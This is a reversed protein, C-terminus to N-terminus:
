ATYRRAKELRQQCGERGLLALIGALGPGERQGTLVLRMTALARGPATASARFDTLVPRWDRADGGKDGDLHADMAKQFEAILAHTDPSRLHRAVDRDYDVTSTLVIGAWAEADSLTSLESTTASVFRSQWEPDREMFPYGRRELYDGVVQVLEVADLGRLVQGNLAKLGDPDLVPSDGQLQDIDFRAAMEDLDAADGPDWGARAAGQLIARALYGADRLAAISWQAPHESVLSGDATKWPPLIRLEPIQWNLVDAVVLWHALERVRAGDVLLATAQAERPSLIAAFIDSPSGDPEMIAFDAKPAPAEVRDLPPLTEPLVLRIRPKRGMKEMAARDTQTLKKCRGDYHFSDPFGAPNVAMERFEAVTCYCPYAKGEAVLEQAVEAARKENAPAAMEDPEIGVWELDDLASRNEVSAVVIGGQSRAWLAGFLALRVDGLDLSHGPPFHM